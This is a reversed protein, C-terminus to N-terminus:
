FALLNLRIFSLCVCVIHRVACSLNKIRDRSSDSHCLSISRYYHSRADIHKQISKFHRHHHRRNKSDIQSLLLLPLLFAFAECVCIYLEYMGHANKTYFWRSSPKAAAAATTTAVVMVAATTSTTMTTTSTRTPMTTIRQKKRETKSNQNDHQHRTSDKATKEKEKLRKTYTTYTQKHTENNNKALCARVWHTHTHLVNCPM